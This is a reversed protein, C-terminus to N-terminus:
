KINEVLQIRMGNPDKIFLFRVDPNPKIPGEEIKIKNDNVLEIAKDLSEVEFGWSIDNGVNIDRNKGDCILEIKTEGKGLFAIKLEPGANFESIVELGIINTYFKVSEELNKVNLTSWCFKM